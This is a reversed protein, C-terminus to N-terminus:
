EGWKLNEHGTVVLPRLDFVDFSAHVGDFAPDEALASMFDSKGGTGPTTIWAHIGSEAGCDIM